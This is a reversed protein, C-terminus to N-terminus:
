KQVLGKGYAFGLVAEFYLVFARFDKEDQVKDINVILFEKFGVPIKPNKPNSAYFAKSKIMRFFPELHKWDQGQEMRLYLNKIEGFFKRIQNSNIEGSLLGAQKEANSDLLAPSLLTKKEDEYFKVDVPTARPPTSQGRGGRNSRANSYNSMANM